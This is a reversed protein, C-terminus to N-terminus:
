KEGKYEKIAIFLLAVGLMLLSIGSSFIFFLIAFEKM